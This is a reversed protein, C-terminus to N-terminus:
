RAQRFTLNLRVDGLLPHSGAKLPAIGHFALRATGGWVVVDGHQLPVKVPKDQRQLGGWLFTAPLGLSVSVIPASLDREDRDQHLAMKAGVRYRNILCADPQFHPFGAAAAAAQALAFWASPMPPWPKGHLSDIPSYRYGKRDSIWGLNGCNTMAVSMTYGGPTQMQRFPSHKAVHAIGDLLTAAHAVAYERLVVADAALREQWPQPSNDFLESLVVDGKASESLAFAAVNHRRGNAGLCIGKDNLINSLFVWSPM